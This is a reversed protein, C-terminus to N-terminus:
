RRLSSVKCNEQSPRPLLEMGVSRRALWACPPQMYFVSRDTHLVVDDKCAKSRMRRAEQALFNTKLRVRSSTWPNGM